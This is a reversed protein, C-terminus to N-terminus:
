LPLQICQQGVNRQSAQALRFVHRPQHSKQYRIGCGINRARGIDYVASEHPIVVFMTTCALIWKALFLEQEGLSEAFGRLSDTCDCIKPKRGSCHFANVTM